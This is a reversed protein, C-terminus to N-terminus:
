VSYITPLTLHTYSVSDAGVEGFGRGAEVIAFFSAVGAVTRGEGPRIGLVRMVPAPDM